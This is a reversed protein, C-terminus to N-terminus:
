NMISPINWFVAGYEKDEKYMFSAIEQLLKFDLASDIDLIGTDQMISIEGKSFLPEGSRLFLESYAYISANMDFMEPAQQRTAYDSHIVRDYYEGQRCVMNFYPNRRSETVTFVVDADTHKRKTIVEELDRLRRLPSTIDLDVVWDYESGYHHEARYYADRIVDIKRVLDGCLAPERDVTLMDLCLGNAQKKMEMSDTSLVIEIEADAHKKM